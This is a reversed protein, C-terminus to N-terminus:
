EIGTPWFTSNLPYPSINARNVLFLFNIATPSASSNSASANVWQISLTNSASVWVGGISLLAQVASQPYFDIMDNSLLGNITYTSTTSTAATVSSAPTISAFVVQSFQVNGLTPQTGGPM